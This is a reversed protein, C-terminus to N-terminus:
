AKFRKLKIAEWGGLRKIREKLREGKKEKNV